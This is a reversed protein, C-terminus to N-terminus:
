PRTDGLCLGLPQKLGGRLSQNPGEQVVARSVLPELKISVSGLGLRDKQLDSLAEYDKYLLDAFDAYEVAGDADQEM